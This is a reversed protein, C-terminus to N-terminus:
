HIPLAKVIIQIRAVMYDIIYNFRNINLQPYADKALVLCATGLDISDEPMALIQEITITSDIKPQAYLSTGFSIISLFLIKIATNM